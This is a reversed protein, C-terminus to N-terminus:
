TCRMGSNSGEGVSGNCRTSSIFSMRRVSAHRRLRTTTTMPHVAQASTYAQRKHNPTKPFALNLQRQRVLIKLVQDRLTDPKRQVLEALCRLTIFRGECLQLLVAILVQRDVKGKARPQSALGELRSRFAQSLPGLADVVPLSLQQSILCGDLDRQDDLNPSSAALIPYSSAWIPSSSASIRPAPGFVDDPSPIADGPLHYVAGRGEFTELM